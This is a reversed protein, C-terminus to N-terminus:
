RQSDAPHLVNKLSDSTKSVVGWDEYKEQRLYKVSPYFKSVKGQLGWRYDPDFPLFVLTNVNLAGSLHVTANDVSVVADLNSILGALNEIDYRPDFFDWNWIKRGTVNQAELLEEPTYDYQLNVIQADKPLNQIIDQLEMSRKRRFRVNGGGKWSIGVTVGMEQLPQIRKKWALNRTQDPVLTLLGEKPIQEDFCLLLDGMPMEFDIDNKSELDKVNSIFSVDDLRRSLLGILRQDCVVTAGASNERLFEPLLRLFFIEDGIGQEQFILVNKGNLNVGASYRPAINPITVSEDMVSPRSPYNDKFTALDGLLFSILALNNRYKHNEPDLSVAEELYERAAKHNGTEQLAAGLNAILVANRKSIRIAKKCYRICEDYEGLNAFATGILNLIQWNKKDSKLAEKAYKIAVEFQGMDYVEQAAKFKQVSM